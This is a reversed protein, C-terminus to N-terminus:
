WLVVINPNIVLDANVLRLHETGSGPTTVRLGAGRPQAPAQLWFAGRVVLKRPTM